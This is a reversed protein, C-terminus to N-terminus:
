GKLKAAKRLVEARDTQEDLIRGIEPLGVGLERLLRIQQLRLLDEQEYHRYGNAAVFAPPLLGIEGYHRLTRSTLGSLKAVEAISWSM